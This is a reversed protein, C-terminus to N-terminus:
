LNFPTLFRENGPAGGWKKEYYHRYLPFTIGNLFKLHPDSNITSSGNHHTVALGTEILEYGALKMRRYYDNDTFYASFITDWTGIAQIAEMNYVALTDYFTYLAGWKRDKKTLLSQVISLLQEPIGVPAEADIHMYMMVDCQQELAFKRLLNMSQTFTLPVPPKYISITEPVIDNVRLSNNDSNDIIILSPWYTKISNIALKLLDPRNVYPIGILYKM